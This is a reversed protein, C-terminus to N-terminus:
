SHTTSRHAAESEAARQLNLALLKALIADDSLPADWGYVAIVAADLREHAILLAYVPHTSDRSSRLTTLDNYIGTLTRTGDAAILANRVDNLYKAWKEIELHQAPTPRPFPFTEFCSQTNYTPDNGVGHWSCTALTWLEHVRSHLVGFTFDDDRAVACVRSDPVTQVTVYMWVRHKAVRPTVIYRTLLALADKLDQGSRGLRWWFTRRQRDNNRDREPKVYQRVYDFPLLYEAAESETRKGFDIIWTDTPKRVIDMGNVWPKVVDANQKGSPNPLSLWARALSSPIDFAGVKVPGQFAVETNELLIKATTLNSRVFLDVGISNTSEGNLKKNTEYGNDFAVMSVRVAAGELIWDRDSWANFIAGTANIRELVKRSAGGRISNTAILGARKTAGTEIVARAKEFWYCVFDAQGAVRGNFVKRLTEVYADGLERRMKKDGLFPPNGVIFEAEPWVRERVGQATVELLADVNRINDLRELIPSGYNSYGNASMWQLYGIWVVVSALEHALPNIELGYFQRPGLTLFGGVGISQSYAIVDRELTKLAQMAVYLFNGSGCAPDLVRLTHLRAIFATVPEDVERVRVKGTANSLLAADARDRILQWERRLPELIVPETLRNIDDRSTYHAGLQARKRPDLAREFLTGFISPEVEEWALQAAARLTKLDGVELPPIPTDGTFLGGNFHPVDELLVEGGHAMAHFLEGLYQRAREPNDSTRELIRTVLKAPLLRADEAFLAFVMQMLFHSASASPVGRAELSRALEGITVAAETTVRERSAKPNLREPDHFANRLLEFTSPELLDELTFEFAKSPTNSFATRILFKELNCVILLPPNELSDRYTLLQEYAGELKRTSRDKFEWVWAGKKFVDARGFQGGPKRVPYEFRYTADDTGADGPKPHQVLECLGNFFVQYAALENLDTGRWRNVFELPSLPM